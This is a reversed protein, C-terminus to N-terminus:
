CKWMSRFASLTANSMRVYSEKMRSRSVCCHVLDCTLVIQSLIPPAVVVVRYSVRFFLRFALYTCHIVLHGLGLFGLSSISERPVRLRLLCYLM